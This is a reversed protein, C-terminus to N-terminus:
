SDVHNSTRFHSRSAPLLLLGVGVFGMTLGLYTFTGFILEVALGLVSLVLTALWVLRSGELLFRLWVVVICVFLLLGIVAGHARIIVLIVGLVILLAYGRV